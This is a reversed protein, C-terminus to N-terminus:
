GTVEEIGLRARMDLPFIGYPNIHGYFLPTIGRRDHRTLREEWAQEAVVQQLMLTNIYVLSNQLLHLSLM